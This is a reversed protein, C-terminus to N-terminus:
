KPALTITKEAVSEVKTRSFFIPFYKGRSWLEYLDRYHPDNVDGSQGPNNLGVSNDWDYTDSVIKFSGGAGQNDTGGTATITYADGGRPSHGVDFKAELDPRLAGSMPHLIRAYHYAGLNWKEMDPGLRKTLEAVAQDLSKVLVANRGAVPDKGFSGEPAALASVIRTLPPTIVDRAAQPVLVNKVNVMLNRQFMEYVGAEVSDKDLVFNWHLLRQAAKRSVPDAITVDRLLPVLSRAPLSIDNNHLAMMDAVSFKRGSALTEAVARGRYPDAWVRHIAEMHDYGLPVQYDNSTNYFGKDPNLVHPLDKIPLFGNWEYRGDGPVPVLGSFNMRRPAIVGANYGITGTRDGWIFNM